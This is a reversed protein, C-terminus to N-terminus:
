SSTMWSGVLGELCCRPRVDQVEGDLLKDTELRRGGLIDTSAGERELVLDSSKTDSPPIGFGSFTNLPRHSGVTLRCLKPCIARSGEPRTFLRVGESEELKKSGRLTRVRLKCRELLLFAESKNGVFFVRDRRSGSTGSIVRSIRLLVKTALPPYERTYEASQLLNLPGEMLTHVLIKFSM